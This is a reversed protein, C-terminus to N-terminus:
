LIGLLRLALALQCLFGVTFALTRLVPLGAMYVLVHVLRAWFFVAAAFATMGNGVGAMSVAIALPAFVALNEVANVHARETRFAWPAQAHEGPAPNDLTGWLGKERMRNLIYPIWILGTLLATLTLWYLESSLPHTMIKGGSFACGM